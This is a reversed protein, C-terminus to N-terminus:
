ERNLNASEKIRKLVEDVNTNISDSLVVRSVINTVKLQRIFRRCHSCMILHLRIKWNLQSHTNNDLYDSALSAVQKCKLM